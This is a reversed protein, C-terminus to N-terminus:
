VKVVFFAVIDKVNTRCFEGFLEVACDFILLNCVYM